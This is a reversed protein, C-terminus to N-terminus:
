YLTAVAVRVLVFGDVINSFKGKDGKVQLPEHSQQDGPSMTNSSLTPPKESVGCGGFSQTRVLLPPETLCPDIRGQSELGQVSPYGPKPGQQLQALQYPTCFPAFLTFPMQLPTQWPVFPVATYLARNWATNVSGFCNNTDSPKEKSTQHRHVTQREATKKATCM